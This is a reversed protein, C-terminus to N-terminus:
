IKAYKYKALDVKQSASVRPYSVASDNLLQHNQQSVRQM